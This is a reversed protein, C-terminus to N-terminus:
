TSIGGPCYVTTALLGSFIVWFRFTIRVTATGMVCVGAPVVPVDDGVIFPVSPIGAEVVMGGTVVADRIGVRMGSEGSTAMPPTAPATM